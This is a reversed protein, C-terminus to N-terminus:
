WKAPYRWLPCNWRRGAWLNDVAHHCIQRWLLYAWWFPLFWRRSSAVRSRNKGVTLSISKPHSRALPDPFFTESHNSLAKIEVESSGDTFNAGGFTTLTVPKARSWEPEDGLGDIELFSHESLPAIELRLHQTLMFYQVGLGSCYVLAMCCSLLVLANRPILVSLVRKGKYVIHKVGHLLLYVMISRRLHWSCHSRSITPKVM